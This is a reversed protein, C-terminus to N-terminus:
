PRRPPPGSDPRAGASDVTPPTGAPARAASDVAASDAPRPRPRSVITFGALSSGAVGSANRIDRVEVLYRGGSELPESLRVVLRDGLAPRSARRRTSDTRGGGLLSELRAIAAKSSDDAARLPAAAGAVTDRRAAPGTRKALSDQLRRRALSDAATGKGASDPARVARYLSDHRSPTLLSLVRVQASDPLRRVTVMTTDYAQAPDLKQNFSLGVSVSDAPQPAGLRPPASDRVFMWLEPVAASDRPVRVSDFAERRDRRQNRNQDITALVMYEGRPLPGIRFRGSSDTTARYVLSDPGLVAELLAGRAPQATTWDYVTGSLTLDPREAGTSFTLVTERGGRNNRIDSVGPLLQIRYVRDPLWGERPRVTIRSRRWRVVPVETTPSLLVLRELDGTGLGESPQGGESIVENFIFEVEGDFGPLVAMTDPRIALLTPPARDPPGGPPPEIRACATAVLLAGWAVPGRSLM